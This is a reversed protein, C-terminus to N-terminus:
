CTIRSHPVFGDTLRAAYRLKQRVFCVTKPVLDLQRAIAIATSTCLLEILM